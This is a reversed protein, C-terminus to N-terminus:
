FRIEFNSFGSEADDWTVDVATVRCSVPGIALQKIFDEILGRDGEAVVKVTSDPLNQAYGNIRYVRAQEIAFFRYGVGQVMGQVIITAKM